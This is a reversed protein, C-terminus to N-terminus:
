MSYKEYMWANMTQIGQGVEEWTPDSMNNNKYGAQVGTLLAEAIGVPILAQPFGFGV